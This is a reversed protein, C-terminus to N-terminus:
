IHMGIDILYKGIIIDALLLIIEIKYSHLVNKIGTTQYCALV